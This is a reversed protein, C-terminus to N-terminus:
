RSRGTRWARAVSSSACCRTTQCWHQRGCPRFWRLFSLLRGAEVWEMTGHPVTRLLPEAYPKLVSLEYVLASNFMVDANEQYPFINREEGRRVSEWRALTTQAAYNRYQADRVM